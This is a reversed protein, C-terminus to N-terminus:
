DETWAPVDDFRANIGKLNEMGEVFIKLCQLVDERLTRIPHQVGAETLLQVAEKYFSSDTESGERFIKSLLANAARLSDGTERMSEDWMTLVDVLKLKIVKALKELTRTRESVREVRKEMKLAEAKMCMIHSVDPNRNLTHFQEVKFKLKKERVKFLAELAEVNSKLSDLMVCSVDHPNATQTGEPFSAELDREVDLKYQLELRKVEADARLGINKKERRLIDRKLM